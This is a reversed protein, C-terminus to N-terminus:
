NIKIKINIENVKLDKCYFDNFGIGYIDANEIEYM